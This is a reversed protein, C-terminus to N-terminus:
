LMAPNIMWILNFETENVSELCLLTGTAFEISNQNQDIGLLQNAMNALFPLHGVIMLDQDPRRNTIEQIIPEVPDGPNLGPHIQMKNKIKLAGSIAQATEIARTQESHWLDNVTIKAASLLTALHQIQQRGKHNLPRQPDKQAAKAKGHRLLYLRM